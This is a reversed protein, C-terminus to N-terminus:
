PYLELHYSRADSGPDEIKFSIHVPINKEMNLAGALEGGLYDASSVLGSAIPNGQNDSFILAIKPFPQTYSAKNTLIADVVLHKSNDPSTRVILNSARIEEVSQVNPIQCKLLSCAIIYAPRVSEIKSWSNFNMWAIQFAILLLAFVCGISWATTTILETRNGTPETSLYVPESEIQISSDQQIVQSTFPNPTSQDHKTAVSAPPTVALHDNGEDPTDLKKLLEEAWDDSLEPETESKPPTPSANAPIDSISAGGFLEDADMDGDSLDDISLFDTESESNDEKSNSSIFENVSDDTLDFNQDIDSITDQDFLDDITESNESSPTTLNSNNDEAYEEANFVNLCSGCRVLGNAVKLQEAKVKFSTQCQPCHTILETVM